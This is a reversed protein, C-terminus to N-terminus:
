DSVQFSTVKRAGSGAFEVDVAWNGADFGGGDSTICFWLWGEADEIDGDQRFVPAGETYWTVLLTDAMSVDVRAFICIRGVDAAFNTTANSTEPDADGEPVVSSVHAELIDAGTDSADDGSGTGFGGGDSAWHWSGLMEDLLEVIGKREDLWQLHYIAGDHQTFFSIQYFDDGGRSFTLELGLAPEADLCEEIETALLETLEPLAAFRAEERAYIEALDPGSRDAGKLRFVSFNPFGTPHRVFQADLEADPELGLDALTDEALLTGAEHNVLGSLDEWDNLYLFAVNDSASDTWTTDLYTATPGDECTTATESDTPEPTPSEAGRTPSPNPSQTDAAAPPPSAESTAAPAGACGALLLILVPAVWAAPGTTFRVHAGHM